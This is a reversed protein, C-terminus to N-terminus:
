AASALATGAVFMNNWRRSEVESPSARWYLRTIAFRAAAVVLVFLLWADVIPTATVDRQTYGLALAILVSAVIGTTANEYLLRTEAARVQQRRQDTAPLTSPLVDPPASPTNM